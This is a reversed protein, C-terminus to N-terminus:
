DTLRYCSMWEYRVGQNNGLNLELMAEHETIAEDFRGESVLLQALNGRARMYPRTEHFGWFHGKFEKFDAGLNKEARVVLNRLIDIQEEAPLTSFSLV